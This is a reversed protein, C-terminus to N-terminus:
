LRSATSRPKAVAPRHGGGANFAVSLVLLYPALAEAKRGWTFRCPTLIDMRHVRAFIFGKSHVTGAGEVRWTRTVLEVRDLSVPPNGATEGTEM